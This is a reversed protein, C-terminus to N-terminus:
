YASSNWRWAEAYETSRTLSQDQPDAGSQLRRVCRVQGARGQHRALVATVLLLEVRCLHGNGQEGLRALLCRDQVDLCV